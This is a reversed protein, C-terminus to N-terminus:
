ASVLLAIAGAHRRRTERAQGTHLACTFRRPRVNLRISKFIYSSTCTCLEKSPSKVPFDPLDRPTGPRM